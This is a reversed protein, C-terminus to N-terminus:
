GTFTESYEVQSLNCCMNKNSISPHSVESKQRFEVKNIDAQRSFFYNIIKKLYLHKNINFYIKVQYCGWLKVRLILKNPLIPGFLPLADKVFYKMIPLNDVKVETLAKPVVLRNLRASDEM